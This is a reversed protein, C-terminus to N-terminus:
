AKPAHWMFAGAPGRGTDVMALSGPTYDILMSSLMLPGHPAEVTSIQTRRGDAASYAYLAMDSLSKGGLVYVTDPDAGVFRPQTATGVPQTWRAAGTALDFATVQTPTDLSMTDGAVVYATTDTLQLNFKEARGQLFFQGLKAPGANTTLKIHRAINGDRTFTVLETPSKDDFPDPRLLATMPAASLLEISGDKPVPMPLTSANLQRGTQDLTTVDYTWTADHETGLLVMLRDAAITMDWNLVYTDAAVGPNRWTWGVSQDTRLAVVTNPTMVALVDGAFGMRTTDNTLPKGGLPTGSVTTTWLAKNGNRTDILSIHDCSAKYGDPDGELWAVAGLGKSNLGDSMGCPSMGSGPPEISGTQKGTAQDFVAIGTGRGVYYSTGTRWTGTLKTRLIDGTVAPGTWAPTLRSPFALTKSPQKASASPSSASTGPAAIDPGSPRNMAWATIGGALIAAGVLAAIIRRRRTSRRGGGPPPGFGQRPAAPPAPPRPPYWDDNRQQPM